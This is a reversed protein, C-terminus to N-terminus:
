GREGKEGRREGRRKEEKKKADVEGCFTKFKSSVKLAKSTFSQFIKM